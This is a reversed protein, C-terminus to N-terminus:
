ADKVSWSEWQDAESVVIRKSEPDVTRVWQDVLPIYWEKNGQRVVLVDSAGAEFVATVDGMIQEQEDVVQCGILDQYYYEGDGPAPLDERLVSITAGRLTEAQNRDGVGQVKMLLFGPSTTLSEIVVARGAGDASTVNLEQEARLCESRPNHLRVKVWGRVGHPKVVVGLEIFRDKQVPEPM